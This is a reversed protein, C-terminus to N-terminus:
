AREIDHIRHTLKSLGASRLRHRMVTKNRTMTELILLDDFINFTDLHDAEGDEWVVTAQPYYIGDLMGYLKLGDKLVFEEPLAM